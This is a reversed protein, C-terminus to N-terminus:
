NQSILDAKYFISEPDVSSEYGGFLNDIGVVTYGKGTLYRSFNAGLLGAAGTILVTQSM